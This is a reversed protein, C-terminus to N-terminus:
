GYGNMKFDNVASKLVELVKEKVVSLDDSLDSTHVEFHGILNGIHNTVSAPGPSFSSFGMRMGTKIEETGETKRGSFEAREADGEDTAERGVLNEFVTERVIREKLRSEPAYRLTKRERDITKRNTREERLWREGGWVPYLEEGSSDDMNVFESIEKKNEERIIEPMYMERETKKHTQSKKGFSESIMERFAPFGVSFFPWRNEVGSEVFVPATRCEMEKSSGEGYEAHNVAPFTVTTKNEPFSMKAEKWDKGVDQEEAKETLSWIESLEKEVANEYLEDKREVPENNGTFVPSDNEEWKRSHIELSRKDKIRSKGPIKKYEKGRCFVGNVTIDWKWLFQPFSVVFRGEPLIAWVQRWTQNTYWEPLLVPVSGAVNKDVTYNEMDNRNLHM